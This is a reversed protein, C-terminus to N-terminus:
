LMQHTNRALTRIGRERKRTEKETKRTSERKRKRGTGRKGTHAEGEAGRKGGNEIVIGIAAEVYRAREREGASPTVFFFEFRRRERRHTRRAM